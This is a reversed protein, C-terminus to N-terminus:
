VYHVEGRSPRLSVIFSQGGDRQIVKNWERQGCVIDLIRLNHTIASWNPPLDPNSYVPGGAETWIELRLGDRKFLVPHTVNELVRCIEKYLADHADGACLVKFRRMDM